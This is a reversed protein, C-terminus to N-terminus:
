IKLSGHILGAGPNAVLDLIRDSILLPVHDIVHGLLGLPVGPRDGHQRSWVSRAISLSSLARFSSSVQDRGLDNLQEGRLSEPSQRRFILSPEPLDIILSPCSEVRPLDWSAVGLIPWTAVDDRAVPVSLSSGLTALIPGINSVETLGVDDPSVSM